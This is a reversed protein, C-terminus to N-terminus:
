YLVQWFDIVTHPQTHFLLRPGRRQRCLGLTAKQFSGRVRSGTCLDKGLASSVTM